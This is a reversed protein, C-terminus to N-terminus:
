RCIGNVLAIKGIEDLSDYVEQQYQEALNKIAPLDAFTALTSPPRDEIYDCVVTARWQTDADAM